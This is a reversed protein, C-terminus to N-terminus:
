RPSDTPSSGHDEAVTARAAASSLRWAAYGAVLGATPLAALHVARPLVEGLDGRVLERIQTATDLVAAGCLGIGLRVGLWRSWRERRRLGMAVVLPVFVALGVSIWDLADAGNPKAVVLYSGISGAAASLTFYAVASSRLAREGDTM